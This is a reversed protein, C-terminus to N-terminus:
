EEITDSTKRSRVRPVPISATPQTSLNNSKSVNLESVQAQLAKIINSLYTNQLPMLKQTCQLLAKEDSAVKALSVQLNSALEKYETELGKLHTQITALYTEDDNLDKKTEPATM